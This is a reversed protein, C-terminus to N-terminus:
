MQDNLLKRIGDKISFNPEFGLAKIKSIELVNKSISVADTVHVHYVLRSGTFAEITDIIEKITNGCGSGVNYVDNYVTSNDILCHIAKILDDIFIYDRITNLPAWFNMKKGNLISDIITPILGQSNGLVKLGGYPNSIRLTLYPMGSELHNIKLLSEFYQKQMAYVCLPDLASDEIIPTNTCNGYVTGGSSLQIYCGIEKKSLYIILRSVARYFVLDNIIESVKSTANISGMADVIIAGRFNFKELEELNQIDTKYFEIGVGLRESYENKIGLVRVEFGQRNFYHAINFGLYGCGMIFMKNM